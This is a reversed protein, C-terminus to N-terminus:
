CLHSGPVESVHSLKLFNAVSIDDGIRCCWSAELYYSGDFCQGEAPLWYKQCCKYLKLYKQAGGYIVQLATKSAVHRAKLSLCEAPVQVAM